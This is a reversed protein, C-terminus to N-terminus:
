KATASFYVVKVPNTSTSSENDIYLLKITYDSESPLSDVAEVSNDAKVQYYKTADGTYVTSASNVVFYGSQINSVGNDSSKQTLLNTKAVYGTTTDLTYTYLSGATLSGSKLTLEGKVGNLYVDTYTTITGSSTQETTNAASAVFVYDADTTPNIESTYIVIAAITSDGENAGNPAYFFSYLSVNTNEAVTTDPVNKYGTYVAYSEISEIDNSGDRKANVLIFVTSDTLYKSATTSGNYVSVTATGKKLDIGNSAAKNDNVGNNATTGVKEIKNIKGNSDLTYRVIQADKIGFTYSAQIASDNMADPWVFKTVNGDSDTTFAGDFVTKEGSSTIIQFKEAAATAGTGLLNNDAKVSNQYAVLYGYLWTTTNDTAKKAIINNCSDLYWEGTVNVDLGLNGANCQSLKYEVGGITYVGASTVKTVTGSVTSAAKMTAIGNSDVTYLVMDKKAFSETEFTKSDVTVTRKAGTQDDAKTVNSVEGIFEHYSVMIYHNDTSTAYVEVTVGNGFGAANWNGNKTIVVSDALAGCDAKEEYQNTNGIQQAEGALVGDEYIKDMVIYKDSSGQIGDAGIAAFIEKETMASTFTFAPTSTATAYTVKASGSEGNTYTTIPRGFSDTTGAESKTYEFEDALAYFPQIATVEVPGNNAGATLATKNLANAQELANFVMNMADVRTIAGSLDSDVGNFLKIKNGDVAVNIAWQSGEYSNVTTTTGDIIKTSLGYGLVNLLMKGFAYGTLQGNPDFKGNSGTLYSQSVCYAIYGSAWNGKTDSFGTDVTSSKVSDALKTGLNLVTLIKAAEARTLNGSLDLKNNEKGNIINLGTVINVALADEAQVTSADAYDDYNNAAGAVTVLSFCLAIALVLALAKKLNKM